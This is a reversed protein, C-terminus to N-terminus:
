ASLGEYDIMDGTSARDMLTSLMGPTLRRSASLRVSVKSQNDVQPLGRLSTWLACHRVVMEDDSCTAWEACNEPVLVVVVIRPWIYDTYRLDDYNKINLQYSVVDATLQGCRWHKAQVDIQPSRIKGTSLGRRKISLDVSDDDVESPLIACGAVSSVARIFALSFQQGQEDIHM